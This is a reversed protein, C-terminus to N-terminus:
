RRATAALLSRARELAADCGELVDAARTQVRIEPVIGQHGFETGDSFADRTVTFRVQWGAALRLVLTQGTSGASAEGIITGRTGDRFAALFDEAAGSTRASALVVVPGTYPPRERRLPPWITDSPARLWAGTSDPEDPGRYAPRYQPTRWRSTLIPRDTLRSLVAYGQERGSATWMTERLDVILGRHRLGERPADGLARDFLAVVDPDALSNIRIWIVGDPLTEAEVPPRELPWRTMLAVSRTVSAGRQTGGPLRLVLHLATGREGELMREVAREWRSSDTAAAIEPLVSDRIWLEAPIGQVAIIEALREPRAIRMEDNAAYDLIFPRREISRLAIPPRATRAAIPAPPLLEFQGDHLLAGWRRLQRFFQLDTPAPAGAGGAGGAGGPGGPGGRANIMTVTAAFASDWNARVADWYAYNYRAESWLGAAVIHRDVPNVRQATLPAFLLAPFWM